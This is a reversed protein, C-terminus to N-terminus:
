KTKKNMQDVTRFYLMPYRKKGNKDMLYHKKVGTKTVDHGKSVMEVELGFKNRLQTMEETEFSSGGGQGSTVKGKEELTKFVDKIQQQEKTDFGDLNNLIDMVSKKSLKTEKTKVVEKVDTTPTEITVDSSVLDSLKKKDAMVRVGETKNNVTKM